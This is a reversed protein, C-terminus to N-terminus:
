SFRTIEALDDPSMLIIEASDPLLGAVVEGDPHVSLDLPLDDHATEIEEVDEEDPDWTHHFEWVYLHYPVTDGEPEERFTTYLRNESESYAFEHLEGEHDADSPANFLWGDAQDLTYDYLSVGEPTSFFGTGDGVLHAPEGIGVVVQEADFVIEGTGADWVNLQDNIDVGALQDGEPSHSLAAHNGMGDHVLVTDGTELDIDYTGSEADFGRDAVTITDGKPSFAIDRLERGEAYVTLEGTELSHVRAGDGTAWGILCDDPSFYPASESEDPRSDEIFALETQEQWDWLAVGGGGAVALVSGDTSFNNLIRKSGTPVTPEDSAAETFEDALHQTPDCQEREPVEEEGDDAVETEESPAFPDNLAWFGFGGVLCLAMAAAGAVLLGRAKAGNGSLARVRDYEAAVEDVAAAAQPPLWQAADSTPAVPGGLAQLVQAATPRRAPDKDLCSALLPRLPPPVRELEPGLHETRYVVSSPHGDGFPGVGTLAWVLVGGLAFVDSPPGAQEGRSTEPAMYGPTGAITAGDPQQEDETARAIGFDIVQPGEAAVMVNAPKLDRHALGQAHVGTLAQAIARALLVASPEPLPGTREVLHQLSPGKVYATALWPREGSTDAAYVRPVGQAHVRQALSLEHAFRERFDPDYAYEARVVKVAAPQDDRDFGLYVRGMGGSGLLATIKYPGIRTPDDDALSRM